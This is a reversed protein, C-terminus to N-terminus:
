ANFMASVINDFSGAYVPGSSRHTYVCFRLNVPNFKIYRQGDRFHRETDYLKLRAHKYAEKLFVPHHHTLAKIERM